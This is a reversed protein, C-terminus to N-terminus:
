LVERLIRAAEFPDLKQLYEEFDEDSMNQSKTEAVVEAKAEAKADAKRPKAEIIAGALEACHQAFENVTVANM